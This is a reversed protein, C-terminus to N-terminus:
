NSLKFWDITSRRSPMVGVPLVMGGGLGTYGAYPGAIANVFPRIAFMIRNLSLDIEGRMNSLNIPPNSGPRAPYLGIKRLDEVKSSSGKNLIKSRSNIYNVLKNCFERGHWYSKSNAEKLKAIREPKVWSDYSQVVNKGNREQMQFGLYKLVGFVVDPALKNVEADTMRLVAPEVLTKLCAHNIPDTLLDNSTALNFCALTASAKSPLLAADKVSAYYEQLTMTKGNADTYELQSKDDRKWDNAPAVQTLLSQIDFDSDSNLALIENTADGIMRLVASRNGNNLKQSIISILSKIVRIKTANPKDNARVANLAAYFSGSKSGASGPGASGARASGGTMETDKAIEDSVEQIMNAISADNFM